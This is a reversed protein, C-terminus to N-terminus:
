DNHGRNLRRSSVAEPDNMQDPRMATVVGDLYATILHVTGGRVECVVAVGSGCYRRQGPFRTVPTVKDPNKLASVVDSMSLGKRRLVDSFHRTREVTADSGIGVQNLPNIWRAM